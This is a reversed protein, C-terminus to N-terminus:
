APLDLARQLAPAVRRVVEEPEMSAIPEVGIMYRSFVIGSVCTCFASARARADAGGIREAIPDVLERELAGALLRAISPDNAAAAVATHLPNGTAATDWTAVLTRVVREAIGEAPGPLAHALMEAPSSTLNMVAAFLGKKSGFWYSVLAVDVVADAAISRLTVADYGEAFFRARAAALISERTKSKGARRGRTPSKNMTTSIYGLIQWSSKL